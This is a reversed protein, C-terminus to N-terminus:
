VLHFQHAPTLWMGAHRARWADAVWNAPGKVDTSDLEAPDLDAKFM